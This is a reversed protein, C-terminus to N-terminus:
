FFPLFATLRIFQPRLSRFNVSIGRRGDDEGEDDSGVGGGQQEDDDDNDDEPRWDAESFPVNPHWGPEGYLFLLPFRLPLYASHLESIRTLRGGHYEIILDRSANVNSPDIALKLPPLFIIDALTKNSPM